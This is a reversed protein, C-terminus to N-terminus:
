NMSNLGKGTKKRWMEDLIKYLARALKGDPDDIKNSKLIFKVNSETFMSM